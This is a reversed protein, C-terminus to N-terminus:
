KNINTAHTHGVREKYAIKKDDAFNFVRTPGCDKDSDNFFLLFLFQSCITGQAIASTADYTKSKESGVQM